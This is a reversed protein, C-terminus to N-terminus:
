VAFYTLSSEPTGLLLQDLQGLEVGVGLALDDGEPRHAEVLVGAAGPHVLLAVHDVQEAALDRRGPEPAKESVPWGEAQPVARSTPVKAWRSGASM